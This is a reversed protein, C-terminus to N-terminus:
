KDFERLTKSYEIAELSGKNYKTGFNSRLDRIDTALRQRANLGSDQRMTAKGKGAYTRTLKHDEITMGIAPGNRRSLGTTKNFANQPVHHGVEGSAKAADLDAFRGGRNVIGGGPGDGGSGMASKLKGGLKSAIKGGPVVSTAVSEAVVGAVATAGGTQAAATIEAATIAIDIAKLAVPILALFVIRGDPDTYKYPNNAAYMYRNFTRPDDVNVGSPDVSLFRGLSPDYYRQQMYVLGSKDQTHGTYGRETGLLGCGSPPSRDATDTQEGYPTYTQRWCLDGNENVAAVASGLADNHFYVVEDRSQGFSSATFALLCTLATLLLTLKRTIMTNMMSKTREPYKM